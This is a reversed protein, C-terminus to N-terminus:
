KQKEEPTASTRAEGWIKQLLRFMEPDHQQLEPRTFPYFDNTGFYAESSEAFYETSNTLAYHKVTQGNWHLVKEYTGSKKMREYAAELEANDSGLVIDHYGHALEHLIMWPQERTWTLFNKPNAIEVGKVKDPNVGHEKLWGIDPHYCCCPFRKDNLEIWIPIRQLEARPKNPVIRNIQYLQHDLLTLTKDCLEKQEALLHQNVYM